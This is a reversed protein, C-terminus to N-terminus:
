PRTPESIHILSLVVNVSRVGLMAKKVKKGDAGDIEIEKLTLNLPLVKGDREIELKAKGDTILDVERQLDTFSEVDKGNIKLVRDNVKMGAQEAAGGAVVEGIVPPFTMKGMFYFIGTFILIAFVYNAAPGAVAIALKKSPPQFTFSQKKEAESLEKAEEGATASSADADGLMKVFGGLPIMAIKWRTGHKDNFGWIERGFGISFEEVKVGCLRAIAFHGLEHVFVLIGLLVLFPVLYYFINILWDM